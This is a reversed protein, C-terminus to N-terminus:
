SAYNPSLTDHLTPSTKTGAKEKHETAM